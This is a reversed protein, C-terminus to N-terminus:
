FVFMSAAAIAKLLHMFMVIIIYRNVTSYTNTHTDFTTTKLWIAYGVRAKTNIIHTTEGNISAEIDLCSLSSYAMKLEFQLCM